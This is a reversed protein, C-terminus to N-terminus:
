TYKTGIYKTADLLCTSNEYLIVAAPPVYINRHLIFTYVKNRTMSISLTKRIIKLFKEKFILALFSFVCYIVCNSCMGTYYLYRLTAYIVYYICVVRWSETPFDKSFLSFETLIILLQYALNCYLGIYLGKILPDKLRM